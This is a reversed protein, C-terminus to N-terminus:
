IFRYIHQSSQVRIKRQITVKRIGGWRFLERFDKRIRQLHTELFLEELTFIKNEVPLLLAKPMSLLLRM